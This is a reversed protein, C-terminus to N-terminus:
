LREVAGGQRQWDDFGGALHVARGLGAQRSATVAMASREGHACYFVIGRRAAPALKNLLGGPGITNDLDGYPIHTSGPIVGHRAREERDRLDILLPKEGALLKQLRRADLSWGHRDIDRQDLGPTLNAPVAVDMMKPDALHLDGMLGVYDKKSAVQLRPNFRKEEGITSVTNGRYDHGPYVLTADPLTLLKKFLSDYQAAASGNQFDTRGTGRILLTDGTFVANEWLFCCSEPTHGPTQLTRLALGDIEICEGDAVRRSVCDVAADAGIVTICRTADRLAALGSIHDAHVHTDIAKMLRLDLEDLLTLYQGVKQAVPDIILAEGGEHPALLYTYTASESDFIQRFIM